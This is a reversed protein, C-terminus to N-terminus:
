KITIVSVDFRAIIADALDAPTGTGIKLHLEKILERETPALNDLSKSTLLKNVAAKQADTWDMSALDVEMKVGLGDEIRSVNKIKM